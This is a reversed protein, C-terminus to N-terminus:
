HIMLIVNFPWDSYVPREYRYSVQPFAGLKEGVQSIRDEPVKWVIM